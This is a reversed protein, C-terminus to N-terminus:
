KIQIADINLISEGKPVKNKAVVFASFEPRELQVQPTHNHVCRAIMKYMKFDPYREQGNNKYLINIGNDDLCWDVIIKAVPNEEIVNSLEDFDPVVYDFISCALRCLDFSYNPELRPKHPNLFPETNYQTAADGGTQFSDSCYVKGNFKYISRGFDIIKFLRGYTPVRYYKQKYFYYLYKENTENFMVNNTHLDNHTFSFTEQYTILIMIIQMLASLWEEKSLENQMILEDFTTECHEMCIVQVPFKNFTAHIKEDEYDDEDEDDDENENDYQEGDDEDDCCISSQELSSDCNNSTHSTRSSCTSSSRLTNLVTDNQERVESHPLEINFEKMDDLTFHKEEIEGVDHTENNSEFVDDFLTGDISKISINSKKSNTYDIKIPPLKREEDGCYENQFLYTYDEVQFLKNKNEIFYKSKCLYELDDIIDVAFNKKIALFSGYYEVGHKFHHEDILTNSLFSFFSDVYASNNENTAIKPHSIEPSNLKPLQYYQPERLDFKGVLFKFPDILPALKFFVNQKRPPQQSDINKLDCKYLKKNTTKDIIEKKINSIYWSHNLNISNYNSENLLFLKNYIPIYNQVEELDLFKEQKFNAFLETNKRKEYHITDIASMVLLIYYYRIHIKREKLSIKNQTKQPKQTNKHIKSYKSYKQTNKLIKRIM